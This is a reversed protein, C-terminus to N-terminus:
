VIRCDDVAMIVDDATVAPHQSSAAIMLSANCYKNLLRPTGDASNVLAELAAEDFVTQHCGAGSLKKEIYSRAEEKSMGELSYKMVIRQTLPEHATHNLTLNLAPLGALLIVARDRSDMEFNFIIKLDNLIASNIYNAEDIIIVPTKKKEVFLRTIENQILHFNQVKRYSPSAGLEEALHRYFEQVTLTSLSTYVVKYLSPNLKKAWQRVITTKGVGAPGTLLGFGKTSSLYDLRTQAERFDETDIIVEKSNKLFPNFELGFCSVNDIM